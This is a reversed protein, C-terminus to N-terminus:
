LMIPKRAARPCLSFCALAPPLIYLTLLKWPLTKWFSNKYEYLSIHHVATPSNNTHLLSAESAATLFCSDYSMQSSLHRPHTPQKQSPSTSYFTCYSPVPHLFYEASRASPPSSTRQERSKLAVSLSGTPEPLGNNPRFYKRISM